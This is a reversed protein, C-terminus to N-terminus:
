LVTIQVLVAWESLVFTHPKCNWITANRRLTGGIDVIRSQFVVEPGFEEFEGMSSRERITVVSLDDMHKLSNGVSIIPSCKLVVGTELHSFVKEMNEAPWTVYGDGVHLDLAIEFESTDNITPTALRQPNSAWHGSAPGTRPPM